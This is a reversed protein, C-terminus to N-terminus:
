RPPHHPPNQQPPHHPPDMVKRGRLYHVTLAIVFFPMSLLSGISSFIASVATSTMLDDTVAMSVHNGITSFIGNVVMVIVLLVVAFGFTEHRQAFSKSKSFAESIDATEVVVIVIAFLWWYCFFIGPICCLVFGIAVVISFALYTVLIAVFRNSMTGFGKSITTTGTHMAEGAMGVMGGMFLAQAVLSLIGGLFLVMFLRALQAMIQGPDLLGPDSGSIASLFTMEGTGVTLMTIIASVLVAPLFFVVFSQWNSTYINWAQSL